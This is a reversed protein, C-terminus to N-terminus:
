VGRLMRTRNQCPLDAQDEARALVRRQHESFRRTLQQLRSLEADGILGLRKAAFLMSGVHIVPPEGRASTECRTCYYV